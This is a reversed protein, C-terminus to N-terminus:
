AGKYIYAKLAVVGPTATDPTVIQGFTLDAFLGRECV